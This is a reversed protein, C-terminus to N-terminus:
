VKRKGSLWDWFDKTMWGQRDTRDLKFILLSGEPEALPRLRLQWKNADSTTEVIWCNEAYKYWDLALDLKKKIDEPAVGEKPELYIHYLEAM